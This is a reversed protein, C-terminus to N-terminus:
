AEEGVPKGTDADEEPSSEPEVPFVDDSLGLEPTPEDM